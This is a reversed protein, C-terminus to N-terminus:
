RIHPIRRCIRCERFGRPDIYLTEETYKHGHKCYQKTATTGRRINELITVPELHSPNACKINRCLHDLVLGDPIKGNWFEYAFRHSSTKRPHTTRNFIGYGDENLAGKWLWCGSIIDLEIFKQFRQIEIRNM